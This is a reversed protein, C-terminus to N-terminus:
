PHIELQVKDNEIQFIEWLFFWIPLGMQIDDYWDANDYDLDKVLLEM